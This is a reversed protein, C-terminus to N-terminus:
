RRSQSSMETDATAASHRINNVGLVVLILLVMAATGMWMLRLENKQRNEDSHNTM